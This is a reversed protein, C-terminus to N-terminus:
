SASPRFGDAPRRVRKLAFDVEGVVDHMWEDLHSLLSRPAIRLTAEAEGACALVQMGARRAIAMMAANQSLCQLRLTQLGRNRAFTAAREFLRTGIGKGRGQPLVSVGFEAEGNAADGLALHAVAILELRRSFVGFVEDRAFDIRRVYADIEPDGAVHGFRLYRDPAELALLHRLLAQRHQPGLARIPIVRPAAAPAPPPRVVPTPFLPSLQISMIKHLAVHMTSYLGERM